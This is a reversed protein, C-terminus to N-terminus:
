VRKHNAMQKIVNVFFVPKRVGWVFYNIQAGRIWGYVVSIPCSRVLQFRIIEFCIRFHVLRGRLFNFLLLAFCMGWLLSLLYGLPIYSFSAMAQNNANNIRQYKIQTGHTFSIRRRFLFVGSLQVVSWRFSILFNCLYSDCYALRSLKMKRNLFRYHARWYHVSLPGPLRDVKSRRPLLRNQNAGNTLLWGCSENRETQLDM